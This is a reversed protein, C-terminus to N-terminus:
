NPINWWESAEELIESSPEAFNQQELLDKIKVLLKPYRQEFLKKLPQQMNNIKGTLIYFKGEIEEQSLGKDCYHYDGNRDGKLRRLTKKVEQEKIKNEISFINNFDQVAIIIKKLSKENDQEINRDKLLKLEEFLTKNIDKQDLIEKNSTGIKTELDKIREELEKIKIKLGYNEKTLEDIKTKYDNNATELERIISINKITEARLIDAEHNLKNIVNDKETISRLLSNYDNFSMNVGSSVTIYSPFASINNQNNTNSVFNTSTELTENSTIKNPMNNKEIDMGKRSM